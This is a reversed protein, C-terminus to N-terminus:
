NKQRHEFIRYNRAAFFRKFQMKQNSRAVNLRLVALNQLQQLNAMLVEVDTRDLNSKYLILEFFQVKTLFSLNEFLATKTNQSLKLSTFESGSILWCFM